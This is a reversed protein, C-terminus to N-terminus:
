GTRPGTGMSLTLTLWIGRLYKLQHSLNHRIIELLTVNAYVVNELPSFGVVQAMKSHSTGLEAM